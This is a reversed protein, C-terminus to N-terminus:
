LNCEELDRLQKSAKCALEDALDNYFLDSHGKVKVWKVDHKQCATYLRQILEKNKVSEGKSSKWGRRIWGTVWKTACNMTYASDTMIKVSCREKLAELGLSPALLESINNTGDEIPYSIHKEKGNYILVVGAGGHFKSKDQIQAISSGDCWIEIEKM